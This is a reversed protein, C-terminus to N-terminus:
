KLVCDGGHLESEEREDGESTDEGVGDRLGIGVSLGCSSHEGFARSAPKYEV